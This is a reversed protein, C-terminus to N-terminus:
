RRLQEPLIHSMQPPLIMMLQQFPTYPENLEFKINNLNILNENLVTYVDNILPSIRFKYHWNWSPCGQFYYKLTFM